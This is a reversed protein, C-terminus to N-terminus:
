YIFYIFLCNFNIMNLEFKLNWDNNFINDSDIRDIRFSYCKM